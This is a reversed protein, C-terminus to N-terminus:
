KMNDEIYQATDDFFSWAGNIPTQTKDSVNKAAQALFQNIKKRAFVAQENTKIIENYSIYRGVHEFNNAEKSIIIYDVFTFPIKKGKPTISEIAKNFREEIEGDQMALNFFGTKSVGIIKMIYDAEIIVNEDSHYLNFQEGLLTEYTESALETGPTHLVHTIEHGLIRVLDEPTKVDCSDIFANGSSVTVGYWSDNEEVLNVLWVNSKSLIEEAKKSDFDDGLVKKRVKMDIQKLWASIDKLEQKMGPMDHIDRSYTYRRGTKLAYELYKYDEDGIKKHIPSWTRENEKNKDVFNKILEYDSEGIEKSIETGLYLNLISRAITFQRIFQENSGQQKIYAEEVEDFTREGNKLWKAFNKLTDTSGKLVNLKDDSSSYSSSTVEEAAEAAVGGAVAIALVGAAAARLLKRINM